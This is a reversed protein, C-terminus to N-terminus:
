SGRSYLRLDAKVFGRRNELQRIVAHSISNGYLKQMEYIFDLLRPYEVEDFSLSIGESDPRMDVVQQHLATMRLVQEVDAPTLSRGLRDGAAASGQQIAKVRDTRSRMWEIDARLRPIEAAMRHKEVMVPHLLLYIVYLLCAAAASLVALQERRSRSLIWNKM